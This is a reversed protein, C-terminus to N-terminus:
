AEVYDKLFSTYGGDLLRSRSVSLHVIQLSRAFGEDQLKKKVLDAQVEVGLKSFMNRLKTLNENREEEIRASAVCRVIDNM